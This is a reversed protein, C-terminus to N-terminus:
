VWPKLASTSFASFYSVLVSVLENIHWTSLDISTVRWVNFMLVSSSATFQCVRVLGDLSPWTNGIRYKLETAEKIATSLLELYKLTDYFTFSAHEEHGPLFFNCTLSSCTKTSRLAGQRAGFIPLFLRIEQLHPAHMPLLAITSLVWSLHKMAFSSLM